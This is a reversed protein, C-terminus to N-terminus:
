GRSALNRLEAAQGPQTAELQRAMSNLMVAGHLRDDAVRDRRSKRPALLLMAARLLGGILPRFVLAATAILGLGVLPRVANLITQSVPGAAEAPFAITLYSM